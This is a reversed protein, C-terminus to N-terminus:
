KIVEYPINNKIALNVMDRTGKSTTLNSHFALVLDPVQKLMERNRIMGAARGHKEWKATFEHVEMGLQKAAIRSLTDAGRAEGEIIVTDRPLECLRNYIKQFDDWNRDGCCLVKM